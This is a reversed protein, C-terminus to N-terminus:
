TNKSNIFVKGYLVAKDQKVVAPLTMITESVKDIESIEFFKATSESSDYKVVDLGYNVLSEALDNCRDMLRKFYKEDHVESYAVGLLSQIQELLVRYEKELSPHEQEKDKVQNIQVRYTTILSDISKCIQEIIDLFADVKIKPKQPLPESNNKKPQQTAIYLAVATGAIAGFVAYWTGFYAGAVGGIMTGALTKVSLMGREIDPKEERFESTM